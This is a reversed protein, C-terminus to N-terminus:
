RKSFLRNRAFFTIMIALSINILIRYVVLISFTKEIGLAIFFGNKAIEFLLLSSILLLIFVSPTISRLINKLFFLLLFCFVLYLFTKAGLPYGSFLDSVIGGFFAILYLNKANRYDSFFILFFITILLLDLYKGFSFYNLLTVQLLLVLITLLFQKLFSKM